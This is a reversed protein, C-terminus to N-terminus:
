HHSPEVLHWGDSRKVFSARHVILGREHLAVMDAVAVDGLLEVAVEGLLGVAAARPVPLRPRGNPILAAATTGGAIPPSFDAFTEAALRSIIAEDSSITRPRNSTPTM